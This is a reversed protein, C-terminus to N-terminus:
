SIIDKIELVSEKGGVMRGFDNVVDVMVKEVVDVMVKVVVDVMVKVMDNVKVDGMDKKIVNEVLYINSKEM